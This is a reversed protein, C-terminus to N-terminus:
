SGRGDPLAFPAAQRDRSTGADLRQRGPGPKAAFQPRLVDPSTRDSIFRVSGDAMLFQAGGAGPRGGFGDPSRNIGQVPDRWNVPHDWPKFHANVEGIVITTSTHGELDAPSAAYNGAMVRSNAAYHSLGYGEADKYAARLEPNLFLPCVKKFTEQNVPDNWPKDADIEIYYFGLGQYHILATEWSHLMRGDEAFTGGKPLPGGKLDSGVLRLNTASSSSFGRASGVFMPERVTALWGVQHVLGIVAIGAAFVLVVLATCTLSWRLKWGVGYPRLLGRAVAHLGAVFLVLAVCGIVVAPWDVTMRQSTQYPFTIWGFVLYATGEWTLLVVSLTLGVLVVGLAIIRFLRSKM